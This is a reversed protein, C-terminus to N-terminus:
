TEQLDHLWAIFPMLEEPPVSVCIDVDYNDGVKGYSFTQIAPGKLMAASSLVDETRALLSRVDELDVNDPDHKIRNRIESIELQIDWTSM